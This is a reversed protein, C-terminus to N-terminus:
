WAINFAPFDRSIVLFEGVFSAPDTWLACPLRAFVRYTESPRCFFLTTTM